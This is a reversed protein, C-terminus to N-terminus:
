HLYWLRQNVPLLNNACPYIRLRKPTIMSLPGAACAKQKFSGIQLGFGYLEESNALPIHIISGRPTVEVRISKPDFSATVAPLAAMAATKPKEQLLNYPSFQDVEGQTVRTVGPAMEKIQQAMVSISITLALAVIGATLKYAM